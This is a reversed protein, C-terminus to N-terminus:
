SRRELLRREFAEEAEELTYFVEYSYNGSELDEGVSYITKGNIEEVALEVPLLYGYSGQSKLIEMDKEKEKLLNLLIEKTKEDIEDNTIDEKTYYSMTFYVTDNFPNALNRQEDLFELSDENVYVADETNEYVFVAFNFDPDEKMEKTIKFEQRKM